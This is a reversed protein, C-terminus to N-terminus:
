AKYTNRFQIKLMLEPVLQYIELLGNVEQGYEHRANSLIATAASYSAQYECVTPFEQSNLRILGKDPSLIKHKGSILILPRLACSQKYPPSHQAVVLQESIFIRRM